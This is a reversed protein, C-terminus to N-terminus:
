AIRKKPGLPVVLIALGTTGMRPDMSGLPGCVSKRPDM